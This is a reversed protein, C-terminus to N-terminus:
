SAISRIASSRSSVAVRVRQAMGEGGMRSPAPPLRLVMWSYRGRRARSSAPRYWISAAQAQELHPSPGMRAGSTRFDTAVPKVVISRSRRERNFLLEARAQEACSRRPFLPPLAGLLAKTARLHPEAATDCRDIISAAAGSRNSLSRTSRSSRLCIRAESSPSGSM